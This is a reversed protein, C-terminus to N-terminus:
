RHLGAKSELRGKTLIPDSLGSHTATDSREDKEDSATLAAHILHSNRKGKSTITRGPYPSPPRKVPTRDKKPQEQNSPLKFKVHLKTMESPSSDLDSNDLPQPYPSPPRFRAWGKREGLRGQRAPSNLTTSGSHNGQMDIEFCIHRARTETLPTSPESERTPGQPPVGNSYAGRFPLRVDWSSISHLDSSLQAPNGRIPTM